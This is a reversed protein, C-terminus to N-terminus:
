GTLFGGIEGAGWDAKGHPDFVDQRQETMETQNEISINFKNIVSNSKNYGDESIPLKQDNLDTQFQSYLTNQRQARIEHSSFKIQGVPFQGSSPKETPKQDSYALHM